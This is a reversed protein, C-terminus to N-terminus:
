LTVDRLPPELRTQPRIGFSPGHNNGLSPGQLLLVSIPIQTLVARSAVVVINDRVYRLPLYLFFGVLIREGLLSYGAEILGVQIM